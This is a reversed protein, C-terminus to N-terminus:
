SSSLFRRRPISLTMGCRSFYLFNELHAIFRSYSKELASRPLNQRGSACSAGGTCRSGFTASHSVDWASDLSRRQILEDVPEQLLVDFQDLCRLLRGPRNASEDIQTLSQPCGSNKASAAGGRRRQGMVREANPARPLESAETRDQEPQRTQRFARFQPYRDLFKVDIRKPSMALGRKGEETIRFRGRGTSEIPGAQGLYTKAWHVRNAFTTQRGSPLLASREESSLAFKAGRREVVDSIKVEGLASEQLVPQMLSQYDPIAM